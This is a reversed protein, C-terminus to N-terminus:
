DPPEFLQGLQEQESPGHSFPVGLIINHVNQFPLGIRLGDEHITFERIEKDHQSGRMKILSIGRRIAGSIEVYRLLIIADTITSLHGDSIADGGSLKPSTSTLMACVGAQKAHACVGITFERITRTSGIREMASVSDLVLRAPKFADMERRIHVLHQEIGLAEPYECVIKLLGRREWEEFDAGWSEANRRLQDRSEEYALLLVREGRRCAAAAFTTGLLTKGGGTPGSVLIISDGFFGGCTMDDLAEDGSSVRQKSSPQRLESASLPLVCVGSSTMTLPVEGDYHSDGRIKLVQMTRRCEEKELVNRLVIVNDSVFEEVGHRSIAGYEHVREATVIGTAGLRRIVEGVRMVERRIIGVNNYHHFLAGISDVVVLSAGIRRVADEIQALLGSLSYTGAEDVSLEDATSDVFMMAGDRVLGQLDWGLRRVNRVIDDPREELTVFVVRRDFQTVSRYAIESALLTKGSGSSGCLLTIRGEPLGGKTVHEFGEVGTPIKVCPQLDQSEIM